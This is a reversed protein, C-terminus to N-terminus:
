SEERSLDPVSEVSEFIPLGRTKARELEMDAGKSHGIFYLADAWQDIYTFDLKMWDAHGLPTNNRYTEGMWRCTAAHPVHPNHGRRLLGLGIGSARAINNELEAGTQLLPDHNLPTMPGCVYINLPRDPRAMVDVSTQREGLFLVAYNIVDLITDEVSEDSVKLIGKSIFTALRSLKDSLRVLIGAGASCLGASECLRFNAFPDNDTHGAYDHNKRTMLSRATDCLKRHLQLLEPRSIPDHGM